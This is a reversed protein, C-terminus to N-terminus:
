HQHDPDPDSRIRCKRAPGSGANSHRIWIRIQGKKVLFDPGSEPVVLFLLVRIQVEPDVVSSRVSSLTMPKKTPEYKRGKLARM